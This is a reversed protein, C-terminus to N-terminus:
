LLKRTYLSLEVKKIKKKKDKRKKNKKGMLPGLPHKENHANSLM